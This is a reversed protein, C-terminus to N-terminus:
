LHTLTTRKGTTLSQRKRLRVFRSNNSGDSVLQIGDKHAGHTATNEFTWDVLIIRGWLKLSSVGARERRLVSIFFSTM